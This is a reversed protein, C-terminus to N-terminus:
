NRHARDQARAIMEGLDMVALGVHNSIERRVPEIRDSGALLNYNCISHIALGTVDLSKFADGISYGWLELGIKATDISLLDHPHRHLSGLNKWQKGLDFDGVWHRRRVKHGLTPAIDRLAHCAREIM